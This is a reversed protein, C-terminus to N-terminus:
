YYGETDDTKYSDGDVCLGVYDGNVLDKVFWEFRAFDENPFEIWAIGMFNRRRYRGGRKGIIDPIRPIDFLDMLASECYGQMINTTASYKRNDFEACHLVLGDGYDRFHIFLIPTNYSSVVYTAMKYDGKGNEEKILKGSITSTRLGGYYGRTTMMGTDRIPTSFGIGNRIWDVLNESVDRRTVNKKFMTM